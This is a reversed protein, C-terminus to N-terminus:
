DGGSRRAWTRTNVGRALCWEAVQGRIVLPRQRLEALDRAGALLMATKLDVLFQRLYQRLREEGGAQLARLAPGAVAVAAAGMALAKAADSGTAIGGSAVVDLDARGLDLVEALSCATPIGWHELGADLQRGARKAEIRAFNTGGYGAM